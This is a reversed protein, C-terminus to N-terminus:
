LHLDLSVGDKLELQQGPADRPSAASSSSSSSGAGARGTAAAATAVMRIDDGRFSGPPPPTATFQTTPPDRWLGPLPNGTIPQAVTGLGGFFRGGHTALNWPPYTSPPPPPNDFVFRSTSPTPVALRHYAGLLGGHLHAEAALSSHLHARKANQRERKHANQHGGLAQSTPFNRLCYHCEFKRNGGDAPASSPTINGIDSAPSATATTSSSATNAESPFDFGFLRIPPQHPKERRIFPLQSFSEVSMLDRTERESM